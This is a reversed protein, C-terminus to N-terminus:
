TASMSVIGMKKDLQRRQEKKGKQGNRKSYCRMLGLGV